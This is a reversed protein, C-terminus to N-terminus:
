EQARQFALYHEAAERVAASVDTRAATQHLAALFETRRSPLVGNIVRNVMWLTHATPARGVSELLIGEYGRGFFREVAHVVPGPSGWDLEPNRELLALLLPVAQIGDAHIKAEEALCFVADLEGLTGKLVRELDGCV